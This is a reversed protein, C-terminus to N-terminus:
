EPKTKEGSASALGAVLLPRVQDKEPNRTKIGSYLFYDNDTKKHHNNHDLDLNDDHSCGYWVNMSGIMCVFWWPDNLSLCLIQIGVQPMSFEIVLDLPHVLISQMFSGVKFSHHIAHLKALAPIRHLAYHGPYFLMEAFGLGAAIKIVLYLDYYPVVGKCHTSAAFVTGMIALLMAFYTYFYGQPVSVGISKLQIFNFAGGDNTLNDLAMVVLLIAFSFAVTPWFGFYIGFIGLTFHHFLWLISKLNRLYQPGLSVDSLGILQGGELKAELAAIKPAIKWHFTVAYSLSAVVALLSVSRWIWEPVDWFPEALGPPPSIVHVVFASLAYEVALIFGLMVFPSTTMKKGAGLTVISVSFFPVGPVRCWVFERWVVM